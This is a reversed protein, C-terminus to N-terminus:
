VLKFSAEYSYFKQGLDPVCFGESRNIYTSTNLQVPTMNKECQLVYQIFLTRRSQGGGGGRVLQQNIDTM